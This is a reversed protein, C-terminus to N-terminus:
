LVSLRNVSFNQKCGELFEDTQLQGDSISYKLQRSDVKVM